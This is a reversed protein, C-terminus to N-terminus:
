NPRDPSAGSRKVLRPTGSAFPADSGGTVVRRGDASFAVGHVLGKHGVLRRIEQGTEVDWIRVTNDYGSSVVRRSGPAIAVSEVIRETHGKLLRSENAAAFADPQERRVLDKFDDRTRLADLVSDIKMHAVDSQGLLVATHLM